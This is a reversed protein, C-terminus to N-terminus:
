PLYESVAAANEGCAHLPQTAPLYESCNGPVDDLAQSGHARPFNEVATLALEGSVHLSQGSPMTESTRPDALLSFQVPHGGPVILAEDDLVTHVFHM